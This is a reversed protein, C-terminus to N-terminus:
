GRRGWVAYVPDSELMQGAYKDDEPRPLGRLSETGLQTFGGTRQFYQLVLGMREFPHLETWVEIAKPPFWRESFSIVFPAGPKLVRQIEKFVELPRILYEVSATCVAADFGADPFPLQPQRNLDQVVRERLQPNAALEEANMGLGTVQLDAIDEPLHSVWSSMLDLVQLGPKLFRAYIDTIRARATADLHHVLRPAAYFQADDRPDLRLFPDGALFDVEVGPPPAQMGPGRATIEQGLDNCRGGREAGQGLDAAVTAEIRAAHGALPHNFDVELGADDLSLIRSPRYDGHFFLSTDFFTAPYFRGARPIVNMGPRPNGRFRSRQLRQVLARDHLPTLEGPPLDLALTAGVACDQLREGLDGPFFDRWLSLKEFYHRDTHTAQASRWHLAAELSIHRTLPM